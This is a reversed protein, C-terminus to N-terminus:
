PDVITAGFCVRAGAGRGAGERVCGWARVRMVCAQVSERFCCRVPTGCAMQIEDAHCEDFGVELVHLSCMCPCVDGIELFCEPGHRAIPSTRPTSPRDALAPM